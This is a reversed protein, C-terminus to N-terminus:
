IYNRAWSIPEILTEIGSSFLLESVYMATSDPADDNKNPYDFSYLTFNMMFRGMDSNPTVITKHPFVIHRKILGRMDAIRKEKNQTNYKELVTCFTVGNEELKMELVTKLSTDTNNEVLLEIIHYKKIKEIIEDYLETIAERKFICDVLYSKDEEGECFIPMSAFDRGKRSPDLVAKCYKPLEKPLQYYQEIKSWEFELGSPSIPDQQYVCSFLYPDTDRRLKLANETSWVNECTSVENDILPVRIQVANGSETIRIYKKKSHEQFLSDKEIDQVIRNMIDFPSWMTGVIIFRVNGDTVRNSWETQWSNYIQTHLQNNTSELAGKIMDDLIIFKNAREGTTSGERTRAIHSKTTDVGNIKWDSDTEKSFIKAGLRKFETFIEKYRPNKIIERVNRSMSKVLDDGYSLRIISSNMDVGYCFASFYNLMFTKAYSPPYSAVLYKIEKEFLMKNLYFAFDKLVDQRNIYVKNQIARDEEMYLIFHHFSRRSVFAYNKNYLLAVENFEETSVKESMIMKELIPFLIKIGKKCSEQKEKEEGKDFLENLLSFYMNLVEIWTPIDKMVKKEIMRELEEILNKTEQLEEKEM